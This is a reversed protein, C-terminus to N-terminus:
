AVADRPLKAIGSWFSEIQNAMTVLQDIGNPKVIYCNAHLNYCIKIDGPAGSSTLMIVPIMRFRQDAKVVKLFQIGDMRPMNIDLLIIDPTPANAFEGLKELFDHEKLWDAAVSLNCPQRGEEFAIKTLEIDGENDEVLLIESKRM